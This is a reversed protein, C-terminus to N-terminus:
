HRHSHIPATIPSLPVGLLMHTNPTAANLPIRHIRWLHSHPGMLLCTIDFVLSSSPTEVCHSVHSLTISTRVTTFIHTRTHTGEGPSRPGLTHSANADTSVYTRQISSSENPQAPRSLSVQVLRGHHRFLFRHSRAGIVM